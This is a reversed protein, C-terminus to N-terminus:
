INQAISMLARYEVLIRELAAQFANVQLPVPAHHPTELTVEFPPWHLGTPAQLVGNYCEYIIGGEAPFGDIERDHNRPLHSEAARLAPELLHKSLVAGNVFGYVGHSTDDAHLNVIGHFAHTWIETELYQVEVEHSNKWFERNLDKGSRSHRTSDEFGTPNCIPYLFLGYGRALEPNRDLAAAFHAVALAGQAEDGHITAFVGIRIMDGGGRPGLFIYRPLEYRRGASTFEGFPKRILYDSREALEDLPALWRDLARCEPMRNPKKETLDLLWNM